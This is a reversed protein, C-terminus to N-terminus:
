SRALAERLANDRFDEDASDLLLEVAQEDLFGSVRHAIGDDSYSDYKAVSVDDHDDYAAAILKATQRHVPVMIPDSM